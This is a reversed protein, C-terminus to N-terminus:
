ISKLLDGIQKATVPAVHADLVLLAALIGYQDTRENPKVASMLTSINMM